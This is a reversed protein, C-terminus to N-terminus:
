YEPKNKDESGACFANNQFSKNNNWKKFDILEKFLRINIAPYGLKLNVDNYGM